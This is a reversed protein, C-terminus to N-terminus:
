FPIFSNEMLNEIANIGNPNIKRAGIGAFDSSTIKPNENMSKFLKKSYDWYFWANRKQEFVFVEKKADIAM